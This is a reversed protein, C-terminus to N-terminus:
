IGAIGVGPSARFQASLGEIYDNCTFTRVTRTRLLGDARTCSLENATWVGKGGNGIQCAVLGVLGSGASLSFGDEISLQAHKHRLVRTSWEHTFRLFSAFKWHM